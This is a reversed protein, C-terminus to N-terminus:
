NGKKEKLILEYKLNGCDYIRPIKRNLMIQHETKKSDYGEKVLIDKRYNFRHKRKKDVVYFYNPPTISILKFNLKEYLNGNSYRRNAYSIIRNPKINKIFFILLKSASGIVSTNLKNCFRLLEYNNLGSESGLVKRLNGFTMLSVLENNYFLGINYKSNISGQIHNVDLFEKAIKNEVFSIICKRAFIKNKTLGLKNLIISEVIYKKEIIEDEFFQLLDYNINNCENLKEVHYTKNLYYESHWYLGNIEIGVKKDNILIDIERNKLLKRNNTTYKVDNENLIKTVILELTSKSASIPLLKTSIEVDHNLRNVLLKRDNEFIHGDPHQVIINNKNFEIIKYGIEGFRKILKLDRNKKLTIKAKKISEVNYDRNINKQFSDLKFVSDVGYKEILSKKSKEIRSKKNEPKSKWVTRCENSCFNRVYKIREKFEKGCELCIRNETNIKHKAEGSCKYSCYKKNEKIKSKFINGCNECPKLIFFKSNKKERLQKECVNSCTKKEKGKRVNFKNGCNECILNIITAM